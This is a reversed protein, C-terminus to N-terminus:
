EWFSPKSYYTERYSPEYDDAEPKRHALIKYFSFAALGLLVYFVAADVSWFIALVFLTVVFIILWTKRKGSQDDTQEM